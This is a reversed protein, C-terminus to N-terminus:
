RESWGIRTILERGPFRVVLCSNPVRVGFRPYWESERISITAGPSCTMRVSPGAPLSCTIEEHNVTEIAVDPHLHFFAEAAVDGSIRDSITLGNRELVWNREHVVRTPRPRYGDHSARIRYGTEIRSAEHLLARARRAVRFGAWVESSDRGGVVVTNHAATGRQRQREADSRYHSTGSNVFIRRRGISLEFSLTDAHAHAPLYDPGVAGCDCILRASSDAVVYGSQELVTFDELAAGSPLELRASYADLQALTPAIDFAADNFFAIEGDPHSMARLWRRMRQAVDTWASPVPQEYARLTNILDLVDELMSAHYMPSLEFHGGDALIQEELERALLRRADTRWQQAEHGAFFLGAMFLAKANMFLHNGLLHHELRAALWRTQIALSAIAAPSLTEGRLAWKIWNVIRRSVPYPAWANGRRPPNEEIWREFLAAHWRSRLGADIANLDDFYHLNYIWLADAGEPEWDAATACRREVGLFRFEDPAIM